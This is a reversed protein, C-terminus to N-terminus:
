KHIVMWEQALVSDVFVIAVDDDEVILDFWTLVALPHSFDSDDVGVSDFQHV